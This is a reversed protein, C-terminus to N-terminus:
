VEWGTRGAEALKRGRVRLVERFARQRGPLGHVLGTRVAGVEDAIELLGRRDAHASLRAARVQARLPVSHRGHRGPLTFSGAGRGAEELLARGVSKEDQYGSLLIAGEPEPLIRTAWELAPGGELMGSTSIVAGTTFADRDRPRALAAVNGGFISVSRDTVTEFLSAVERAMGDVLVPVDPLHERLLLAIEQARGLAFAPILVRGGREHVQAVCRLLEGVRAGRDGHEEACCTSELLLLEARRAAEPLAYGDVSQQRFGSIDGTIVVRRGGASILVGAAGLIHGAEFLQVTLAGITRRVGTPLEELRGIAQDVAARDYLPERFGGYARLEAARHGMVKVSDRWMIPMLGCTQPTAVVPLGPWRQVLAPVYGCHDVHAHTIVVADPEAALAAAIDRPPAPPDGPRLGADVLLRTGGGEVLFCSGGIHDDGGLPTVRLALEAVRAAPVSPVAAAAPETLEALAKALSDPDTSAGRRERLAKLLARALAQPDALQQRQGAIVTRLDDNDEAVEAASDRATELEVRLAAIDAQAYELKRGTAQARLQLKKNRETLRKIRRDASAALRQAALAIGPDPHFLPGLVQRDPPLTERCAARLASSKVLLGLLWDRRRRALEAATREPGSYHRELVVEAAVELAEILPDNM